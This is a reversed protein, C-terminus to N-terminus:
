RRSDTPRFAPGADAPRDDNSTDPDDSEEIGVGRTVTRGPAANRNEASGLSVTGIQRVPRRRIVDQHDGPQQDTAFQAAQDVIALFGPQRQFDNRGEIFQHGAVVAQLQAVDVDVVQQAAFRHFEVAVRDAGQDGAAGDHHGTGAAADARLNAALHELEPRPRKSSTSRASFLRNRTSCSNRSSRASVVIM